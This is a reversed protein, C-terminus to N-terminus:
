NNAAWSSKIEELPTRKLFSLSYLQRGNPSIFQWGTSQRFFNAFLWDATGRPLEQYLNRSNIEDLLAQTPIDKLEM